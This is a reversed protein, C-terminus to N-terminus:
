KKEQMKEMFKKLPHDQLLYTYTMERGPMKKGDLIKQVNNEYMAGSFFEDVRINRYVIFNEIDFIKGKELAGIYAWFYYFVSLAEQLLTSFLSDGVSDNVNDRGELYSIQSFIKKFLKYMVWSHPVDNLAMAHKARWKNVEKVLEDIVKSINKTSLNLSNGIGDYKGLNKANKAILNAISYFPPQLIISLVQDRDLDRVLSAMLLEFIRGHFILTQRNGDAGISRYLMLVTLLMKKGDDAVSSENFKIVSGMEPPPYPLMFNSPINDMWSEPFDRDIYKEWDCKIANSKLFSSYKDHKQPQFLDTELVSLNKKEKAVRFHHMADLIMYAVRGGSHLNFFQRLKDQWEVVLNKAQALEVSGTGDGYVIWRKMSLRNKRNNLRAPLQLLLEEVYTVLQSFERISDIPLPFYSAGVGNLRENFISDLWYKFQPLPLIKVDLGHEKRSLFVNENRLYSLFNSLAIRRPLPLIKRLYDVSLKEATVRVEADGTKCEAILRGYFNRWIVQHYLNLDGCIIPIVYPTVLYKRVVEIQEFSFQLAVDVDDIPMVILEKKVMRRIADFFRHVESALGISGVYSRLKDMGFQDSQREIGEFANALRELKEHFDDVEAGGRRMANQVNTNNVVAAVVINLFLNDTKELLTPDIPKLILLKEKFDEFQSFYLELNSLVATKGDGRKGDLFIADHTRSSDFDSDAKLKGVRGLDHKILVKLSEFVDQALLYQAKEQMAQEDQYLPFLIEQEPADPM